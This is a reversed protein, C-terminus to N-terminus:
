CSSRHSLNSQGSKMLWHPAVEVVVACVNNSADFTILANACIIRSNCLDGHLSWTRHQVGLYSPSGRSNDGRLRVRCCRLLRSRTWQLRHYIILHHTMATVPKFACRDPLGCLCTAWGPRAHNSCCCHSHLSRFTAHQITVSLRPNHVCKIYVKSAAHHYPRDIVNILHKV